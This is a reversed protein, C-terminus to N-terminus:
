NVDQATLYDKLYDVLVARPGTYRLQKLVSVNSRAVAKANCGMLKALSDQLTQEIAGIGQIHDTRGRSDMLIFSVEHRLAVWMLATLPLRLTEQSAPFEVLSKFTWIFGVATSVWRLALPEGVSDEVVSACSYIQGRAWDYFSCSDVDKELSPERSKIVPSSSSSEIVTGSVIHGKKVQKKCPHVAGRKPPQTQQKAPQGHGRRRGRRRPQNEQADGNALPLLSPGKLEALKLYEKKHDNELDIMKAGLKLADAKTKAHRYRSYREYAASKARKPNDIQFSIKAELPWFRPLMASVPVVHSDMRRTSNRESVNNYM